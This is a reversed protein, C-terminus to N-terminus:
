SQKGYKSALQNFFGERDLDALLSKDVFDAAKKGRFEAVTTTLNEMEAQIVEEMPYPKLPLADVVYNKHLTELRRPDQERMHKRFSALAVNKNAKGLWIAECYAMMFGRARQRQNKLFDRKASLDSASTYIGLDKLDSLVSLKLNKQEAEFLNDPSVLTADIKGQLMVMIRKNSEALGTALIQIDKGPTFGLKM